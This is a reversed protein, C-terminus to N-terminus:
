LKGTRVQFDLDLNVADRTTLFFSIAEDMYVVRFEKPFLLICMQLIPANKQQGEYSRDDNYLVLVFM